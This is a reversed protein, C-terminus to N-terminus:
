RYVNSVGSYTKGTPKLSTSNAALKPNFGTAKGATQGSSFVGSASAGALLGTVNAATSLLTGFAQRKGAVKANHGAARYNAGRQRHYWDRYRSEEIVSWSKADANFRLTTEDDALRDYTTKAIDQATVSSIDIGNAAMVARQQSTLQIADRKFDKIEKKAADQVLTSQKQGRKLAEKGARDEQAALSDYHKQQAKGGQYQNYASYAGSAAMTTAAVVTLTVPDCM